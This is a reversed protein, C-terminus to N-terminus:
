YIISAVIIFTMCVLSVAALCRLTYLLEWKFKKNCGKCAKNRKM